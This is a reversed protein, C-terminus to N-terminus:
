AGNWRELTGSVGRPSAAPVVPAAPNIRGTLGGGGRHRRATTPEDLVYIGGLVSTRADPVVAGRVAGNGRFRRWPDRAIGQRAGCVCEVGRCLFCNM